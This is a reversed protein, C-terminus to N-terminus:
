HMNRVNIVLNHLKGIPGKARWHQYKATTLPLQGGAREELVNPDKSFLLTKAVLNIIHGIWRSRRQISVFGLKKNIAQMATTNNEANNLTFYNIPNEIRFKHIVDLMEAAISSGFHRSATPM